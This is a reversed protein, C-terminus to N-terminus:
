NKILLWADESVTDQIKYLHNIAENKDVFSNYVVQTLGWKNVGIIKSNYGLKKLQNVKKKANEPYQFAGAVIHYPKVTEKAVSLEITPLPNSIVFTANQIKKELAKEQNALIEQQKNQQYLNNGVYGLTLLVAVSAAYKVFSTIKNTEKKFDVPKITKINEPKEKAIVKPSVASLGFSESLFNVNKNPEFILQNQKNFHMLGIVGINIPNKKLEVKWNTVTLAINELAKEYSINESTAIYNALLGDNINLHSNFSIQKAPPYFTQTETHLKSGIRNTIFGGFNPVIVCDYRYLLDNIYTALTM